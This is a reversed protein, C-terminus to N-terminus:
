EAYIRIRCAIEVAEINNIIKKSKGNKQKSKHMEYVPM